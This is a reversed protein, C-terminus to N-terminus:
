RCDVTMTEVTEIHGDIAALKSQELQPTMCSSKLFEDLQLNDPSNFIVLGTASSDSIIIKLLKGKLPLASALPLLMNFQLRVEETLNLNYQEVNGLEVIQENINIKTFFGVEQFGTFIDAALGKLDAASLDGGDMFLSSTETDYLWSMQLGALEGKETTVLRATLDFQYHFASGAAFSNKMSFFIMLVILLVKTKLFVSYKM